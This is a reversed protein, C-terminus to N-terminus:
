FCFLNSIFHSVWVFGWLLAEWCVTHDTLCAAHWWCEGSNLPVTILHTPSYYVHAHLCHTQVESAPPKDWCVYFSDNETHVAINLVVCIWFPPPLLLLLTCSHIYDASGKEKECGTRWMFPMKFCLIFKQTGFAFTTFLCACWCQTVSCLTCICAHWTYLISIVEKFEPVIVLFAFM